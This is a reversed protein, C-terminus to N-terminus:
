WRGVFVKARALKSQNSRSLSKKKACAVWVRWSLWDGALHVRGSAGPFLVADRKEGLKRFGM